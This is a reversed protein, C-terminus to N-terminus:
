AVSVVLASIAEQHVTLVAKDGSAGAAQSWPGGGRSSVERPRQLAAADPEEGAERAM